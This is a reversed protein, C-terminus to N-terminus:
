LVNVSLSITTTHTKGGGTGTITITHTGTSAGQSATIKMTSTGAGPAAISAPTFSVSVGSPLGSASLRIASDFSGSVATTITATSSSAWDVTVAMPSATISFDAGASATVTLAFTATISSVGSGSATITITQGSVLTATSAASLSISGSNGVGPQTFTATVGSPLTSTSLTVSGTYNSRTLNVTVSQASGGRNLTVTTPNLGIAISAAPATVSVSAVGTAASYNSDGSYSATLTDSGPSLSGAPINITASGGGLTATPSTYGGGALIVTGTPTPQGSGGTVTVTVSLAQATTISTAGPTVTLTPTSFPLLTAALVVVNRNPPLALSQVTKSSNLAFSYAYLYYVTGYAGGSNDVYPAAVAVLEGPACPKSSTCSNGSNWDDFTQTFEQTTGDSYTVTLTQSQQAGNVGTALMNLSGFEGSPLEISNAGTGYVSDPQNPPGFTFQIENFNLGMPTTGPPSLLNASFVEGDGNLSNASTINSDDADDYFGFVDYASSLDVATGAGGSLPPNVYVNVLFNQAAVGAASGVIKMAAPQNAGTLPAASTASLTLTYSNSSGQAFEASVGAPLNSASFSVPGSFGNVPTVNFTWNTSAGQNASIGPPMGTLYFSPATKGYTLTTNTAGTNTTTTSVAYNCQPLATTVADSWELGSVLNLNSDYMLTNITLSANSPYDACQTVGYAELVGGFGWGLIEGESPTGRLETSQNTTQDESTVNWTPCIETGAACTMAITGVLTDGVKVNIPNSEVAIGAACCNWSEFQWPAGGRSALVPQMIFLRPGSTPELGPFFYLTQGERALPMPPVTWNSVVEGFATAIFANSDEVWGNIAPPRTTDAEEAQASTTKHAERWGAPAAEGTPTYHPYLCPAITETSGDAHRLVGDQFSEAKKLQLVCSPHFYGSPTIVYDAPVGIPRNPGAPPLQAATTRQTNQGFASLAAAFCAVM